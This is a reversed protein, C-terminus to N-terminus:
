RSLAPATTMSGCSGSTRAQVVPSLFFTICNKVFPFSSANQSTKSGGSRFVALGQWVGSKHCRDCFHTNGTPVLLNHSNVGNRRTHHHLFSLEKHEGWCQFAAYRCCYRCKFALWDKGHTPCDEMSSSPQCSCLCM